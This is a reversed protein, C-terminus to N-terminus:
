AATSKIQIEAMLWVLARSQRAKVVSFHLHEQPCTIIQYLCCCDALRIEWIKGCVNTLLQQCENKYRDGCFLTPPPAQTVSGRSCSQTPTKHTTEPHDPTKAWLNLRTPLREEDRRGRKAKEIEKEWVCHFLMIIILKPVYFAFYHVKIKTSLM